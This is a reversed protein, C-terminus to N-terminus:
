EVSEFSSSWLSLFYSLKACYLPSQWPFTCILLEKRYSEFRLIEDVFNFHFGGVGGGGGLNGQFKALPCETIM